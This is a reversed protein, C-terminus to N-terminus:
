EFIQAVLEALQQVVRYRRLKVAALRGAKQAAAGVTGGHGAHDPLDAALRRGGIGDAEFGLAVVLHFKRADRGLVELGLVVLVVHRRVIQHAANGITALTM